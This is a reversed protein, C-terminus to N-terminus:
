PVEANTHLTGSGACHYILLKHASQHSKFVCVLGRSKLQLLTLKTLRQSEGPECCPLRTMTTWLDTYTLYSGFHKSSWTTYRVSGLRRRLLLVQIVLSVPCSAQSPLKWVQSLPPSASLLFCLSCCISFLCFYFISVSVSPFFLSFLSCCCFRGAHFVRVVIDAGQYPELLKDALPYNWNFPTKCSLHNFVESPVQWWLLPPLSGGRSVLLSSFLFFLQKFPQVQGRYRCTILTIANAGRWDCLSSETLRSLLGAVGRCCPCFALLIRDTPNVIFSGQLSASLPRKGPLSLFIRSSLTTLHKIWGHGHTSGFLNAQKGCTRM